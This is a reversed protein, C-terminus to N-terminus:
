LDKRYKLPSIGFEEKFLKIFYSVDNFGVSYAIETIPLDTGRLMKKADTLKLGNAYARITMGSSKKFLHSIHSKSRAFHRCLDDLTINTHYENLFRLILNYEDKLGESFEDALKELMYCLPPIISDLLKQPIDKKELTMEWLHKNIVDQATEKRYGSVAAFGIAKGDKLIPCIFENVGAHCVSLFSEGKECKKILERQSMICKHQKESKVAMCYPNTHSNYKVLAEIAKKPLCLYTEEDFHVSVSLECDNNLYEIYSTIKDLLKEM